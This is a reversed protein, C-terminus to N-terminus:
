AARSDGRAFVGDEIDVGMEADQAKRMERLAIGLATNAKRLRQAQMRDDAEVDPILDNLLDKVEQTQQIAPTLLEELTGETPLTNKNM